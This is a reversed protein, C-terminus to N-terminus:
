QKTKRAIGQEYWSQCKETLETARQSIEELKKEGDKALKLIELLEKEQKETIQEIM